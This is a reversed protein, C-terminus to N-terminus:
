FEYEFAVHWGRIREIRNKDKGINNLGWDYGGRLRYNKWQIGGGAGLQFSVRNLSTKYLDYRGEKPYGEIPMPVDTKKPKYRANESMTLGININPGAYGFLKMGWFIPISYTLRVPVDILHGAYEFFATDAHAYLQQRKGIAYAYKVGTEVGFGIRLPLEISLGVRGAHYPSKVIYEGYRYSQRYGMDVRYKTEQASAVSVSILATIIAIIINQVKM